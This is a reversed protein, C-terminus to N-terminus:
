GIRQHIRHHPLNKRSTEGEPHVWIINIIHIPM